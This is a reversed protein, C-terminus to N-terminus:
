YLELFSLLIDKDFLRETTFMMRKRVLGFKADNQASVFLLYFNEEKDPLARGALIRFPENEITASDM